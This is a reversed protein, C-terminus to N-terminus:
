NVEEGFAIYDDVETFTFEFEGSFFRDETRRVPWGRSVLEAIWEDAEAKTVFPGFVEEKEGPNVRSPLAPSVTVFFAM